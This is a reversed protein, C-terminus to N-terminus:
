ETNQKIRENLAYRLAQNEMILNKILESNKLILDRNEQILKLLLAYMVHYQISEAENNANYSILEPLLKEVDEAIFGYQINQTPDNKLTFQVPICNLFKNITEQNIPQINEKFKKSSVVTGLQGSANIIVTQSGGGVAAGRIGAIFTLTQSTGIRTTNAEAAAAANANIYINGSGSALTGGAGVGIAINSGGSSLAPFTAQGVATNNNAAAAAAMSGQGVATNGAATTSLANLANDGVATNNSGTISGLTQNGM